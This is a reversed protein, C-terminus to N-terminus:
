GQSKDTSAKAFDSPLPGAERSPIAVLLQTGAKAPIVSPSPPSSSLFLLDSNLGMTVGHLSVPGM